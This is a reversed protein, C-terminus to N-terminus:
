TDTNNKELIRIVTKKLNPIYHHIVDWIISYDIGFYGHILKDRMGSIKRWEIADYQTKLSQPLHKSAEGIIELSRVISRKLHENSILGDFDLDKSAQEIYEIEQLIHLLYPRYNKM